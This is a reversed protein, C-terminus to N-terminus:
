PLTVNQAFSRLKPSVPSHPLLEAGTTSEPVYVTELSKEGESNRFVVRARSAKSGNEKPHVTFLREGGGQVNRISLSWASLLTFQYTGVPFHQSGAAFAFPVTVTIAQASATHTGVALLGSTTVAAVIAKACIAKFKERTM